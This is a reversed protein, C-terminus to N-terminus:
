QSRVGLTSIVRKVGPVTKTVTEAKVKQETSEVTGSLYVTADRSEVGLRTLHSRMMMKM